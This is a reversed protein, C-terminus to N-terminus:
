VNIYLFYRNLSFGFCSCMGVNPCNTKTTSVRNQKTGIYPSKCVQRPQRNTRTKVKEVLTPSLVFDIKRKAGSSLNTSSVEREDGTGQEPCPNEKESKDMSNAHSALESEKQVNSNSERSKSTGSSDCQKGECKTSRNSRTGDFLKVVM